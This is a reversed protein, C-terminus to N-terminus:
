NFKVVPASHVMDDIEFPVAKEFKFMNAIINGPFSEVANNNKYVVDNYFQRAYAIKDEIEGLEYRLAAFETNAKLEPYKEVTILLRSLAGSLGKEAEMREEKTAAVGSQNRWMTVESLTEKEHDAYGQVTAVLNPILDWRKQLQVNIQSWANQVKNRLAILLNYRKGVLVVVLITLIIVIAGIVIAAIAGPSILLM